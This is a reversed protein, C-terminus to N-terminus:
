NDALNMKELLATFRPHGHLVKFDFDNKIKALKYRKETNKFDKELYDIASEKDGLYACLSALQYNDDPKYTKFFYDLNWRVVGIIGTQAYIRDLTDDYNVSDEVFPIWRKLEDFAEQDKGQFLNAKLRTFHESRSNKKFEMAKKLDNHMGDFDGENYYLTVSSHYMSYALPNLEIAKNLHKRAEANKGLINLYDGYYKHALAFNPNLKIALKLEKEALKWDWLFDSACDGLAAHAEALNPDLSIAKMAYEKCKPVSEEFPYYGNWTLTNYADAIGAYALGYNPDKEIAMKYFNMCTIVDKTTKRHWFYRGMLYLNYAEKDKTQKKEINAMEGASLILELEEAIQKSVESTFNFIDTLDKNYEDSWVHIDNKADILQVYIRVKDGQNLISGELVHTVHMEKAIEPVSIQPNRYQESSIRSKVDISQVHSLRNLIDEMIGDALYQIESNESLNKLPLVAISKTTAALMTSVDEKKSGFNGFLVTLSLAIIVFGMIAVMLRPLSGKKAKPTPTETETVAIEKEPNYKLIVGPPYGFYDHFCKIFYSPSGFGVKYAIESVTGLEQQLMEKAKNLRIERIFQSISQNNAAKLRRHLQTRSIGTKRALEKVGFNEDALNMEVIKGLKKLFEPDTSLGNIM